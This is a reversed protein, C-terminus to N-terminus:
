KERPIREKAARLRERLENIRKELLSGDGSADANLDEKPSYSVEPVKGGYISQDTKAILADAKRIREEMEMRKRISDDSEQEALKAAVERFKPPLRKPDTRVKADTGSEPPPGSEPVLEARGADQKMDPQHEAMDSRFLGSSCIFFGAAIVGVSVTLAIFWKSKLSLSM